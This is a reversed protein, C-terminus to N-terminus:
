LVKVIDQYRKLQERKDIGGIYGRGFQPRAEVRDVYLPNLDASTDESKDWEFVFKYKDSPKSFRKKQEKIGLYAKKTEEREKEKLKEESQKTPETKKDEARKQDSRSEGHPIAKGGDRDRRDDRRTDRRDDRRNRDDNRDDKQKESKAQAFFESRAKREEEQKARIAAVEENRRQRAAARREEPSLFKAKPFSSRIQPVFIVKGSNEGANSLLIAELDKPQKPEEIEMADAQSKKPEENRPRKSNQEDHRDLCNTMVMRSSLRGDDRPRKYDRDRDRREDHASRRTPSRDGIRPQSNPNRSCMRTTMNVVFRLCLPSIWSDVGIRHDSFLSM